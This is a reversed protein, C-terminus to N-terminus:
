EKKAEEDKAEKRYLASFGGTMLLSRIHMPHEEIWEQKKRERERVEERTRPYLFSAGGTAM